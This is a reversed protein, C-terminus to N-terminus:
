SRFLAAGGLMVLVGLVALIIGATKSKGDDSASDDPEDPADGDDLYYDSPKKPDYKIKIDDGESYGDDPIQQAYEEGNVTYVIKWEVFEKDAGGNPDPIATVSKEVTRATGEVYTDEEIITETGFTPMFSYGKTVKFAIYLLLLGTVMLVIGVIHGAGSFLGDFSKDTDDAMILLKTIDM